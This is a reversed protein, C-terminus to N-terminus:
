KFLYTRIEAPRLAADVAGTLPKDVLDLLGAATQGDHTVTLPKAAQTMNFGRVILGAAGQKTATVAFAPDSVSLYTAAAPKSGAHATTQKTIVPIQDARAAQYAALQASESGDTFALSFQATFDGQCQAAPTAFYGWDGMEGICRLLTVAIQDGTPSVEYENLGFNGVVVGRKGDHVTAFAQQHQPNTPNQWNPGVQNNRTVVEFISEAQHTTTTLGTAVVARLRHDKVTNNGRVTVSVRNDQDLRLTVALPLDVYHDGRKSTRNTIDIVAQREYDLSAAAQDPVTLTLTFDLEQGVATAKTVVDAVKGDKSTFTLKDASQRYIYENGMDGTDEILLADQYRHGTTLDDVTISNDAELTVRLKGNEIANAAKPKAIAAAEGPVVALTQWGFAPLDAAVQVDVYLAMFPVRFTRDPLEYNFRVHPNQILAPVADGNQDVVTLAPLNQALANLKDYQAKPAGDKFLARELEVEVTVPQRKAAGATNLLVFPHADPAFSATDLQQAFRTLAQESLSEGVQQAAHFRTMMREHVPDVSCGCISDHPHNQLLFHWAYDLRDQNEATASDSLALLPEVQDELLRETKTNNQKLYVRSSATNALTYWGDTAQSTLEGHITSLDKPLDHRLAEIYAPFNSHVFEYDPYLENAVRIAESLDLQVPQHDVGNMFLLDPTSAFREADALHKDWYAKAEARDTPIENGNSYWNAFLIGLVKSADPGEWWMESYTSDFDGKGGVQNNLGTPTVGRGFAVTDLGALKMMQATQGMNGFTDPFYGLPVPAHGWKQSAALGYQTNRVNAEPSILFDDQLIYFPGIRLKGKQIWKELEARKEPRVKLYDDLIITQGDLHFSDFNPDTEFLHFLDDILSILRMHHKEYGMYWERDWHSHSVIFVKKKAM